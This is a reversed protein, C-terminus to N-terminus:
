AGAALRLEGEAFCRILSPIAEEVRERPPAFEASLRDISIPSVAVTKAGDAIEIRAGSACAIADLIVGNATNEGRVINYIKRRGRVAIEPLLRVVDEM